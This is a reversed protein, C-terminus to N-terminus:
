SNRGRAALERQAERRLRAPLLETLAVQRLLDEDLGRTHLFDLLTEFPFDPLPREVRTVADGIALSGPTLVRYYWGSRGNRVMAKPLRKNALHLALKFCPERPQCVQLRVSGVLHVDGVCLDAEALGVITLNEGFAGPVFSAAQEPFESAWLLYHAAPYAYVAKEPGGHVRHDAQEDPELGERGVKVAGAIERKVFASPVGEPGLPAVRGARVSVVRAAPNVEM